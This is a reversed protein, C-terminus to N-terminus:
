GQSVSGAGTTYSAPHAGPGSQVPASFRAEVPIKKLRKYQRWMKDTSTEKDQSEQNKDESYSVCVCVCM